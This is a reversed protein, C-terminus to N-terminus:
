RPAADGLGRAPLGQQLLLHSVWEPPLQRMVQPANGQGGDEPALRVVNHRM